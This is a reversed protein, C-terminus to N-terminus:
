NSSRTPIIRTASIVSDTRRVKNLAEELHTKDRVSLIFRLDIADQALEKGMDVHSIDVEANALAVSVKALVGKGNVVTILVGVEFNRVPDDSWEVPIFREADKKQLRQVTNCESVHVALGEGRGLYGLIADGPVPRCCSAYQVSASESGDLIISSAAVKDQRKYM